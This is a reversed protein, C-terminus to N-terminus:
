PRPRHTMAITMVSSTSSIWTGSSGPPGSRLLLSPSANPSSPGNKTPDQEAEHHGPDGPHSVAVDEREDLPRVRVSTHSFM